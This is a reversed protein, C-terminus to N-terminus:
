GSENTALHVERPDEGDVLRVVTPGEGKDYLHFRPRRKGSQCMARTKLIKSVHRALEDSSTKLRTAIMLALSFDGELPTKDVMVAERVEGENAGVLASLLRAAGPEADLFKEIVKLLRKDSPAKALMLEYIAM